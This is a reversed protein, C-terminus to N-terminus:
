FRWGHWIQGRACDHVEELGLSPFDTPQISTRSCLLSVVKTWDLHLPTVLTAACRSCFKMVRQLIWAHIKERELKAIRKETLPITSRTSGRHPATSHLYRRIPHCFSHHVQGHHWPNFQKPNEYNAPYHQAERIACIVKWGKPAVYGSSFGVVVVVLWSTFWYLHQWGRSAWPYM